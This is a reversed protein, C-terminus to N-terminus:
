VLLRIRHVQVYKCHTEEMNLLVSLSVSENVSIDSMINIVDCVCVFHVDQENVIIIIIIIHNKNIFHLRTM